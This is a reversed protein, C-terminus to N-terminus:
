SDGCVEGVGGRCLWTEPGVRFLSGAVMPLGYQSPLLRTTIRQRDSPPSNKAAKVPDGGLSVPHVSELVSGICICLRIAIRSIEGEVGKINQDISITSEGQRRQAGLWVTRGLGILGAPFRVVFFLLTLFM